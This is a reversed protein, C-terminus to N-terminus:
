EASKTTNNGPNNSLVADPLLKCNETTFQSFLCESPRRIEGDSSLELPTGATCTVPPTLLKNEFLYGCRREM